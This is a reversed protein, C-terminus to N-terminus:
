FNGQLTLPIAERQIKTPKKWKLELCTHCLVDM